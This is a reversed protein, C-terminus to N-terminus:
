VNASRPLKRMESQGCLNGPRARSGGPRSPALLASKPTRGACLGGAASCVRRAELAAPEVVPLAVPVGVGPGEMAIQEPQSSLVRHQAPLALVTQTFDPLSVLTATPTPPAATVTATPVAAQTEVQAMFTGAIETVQRAIDITPTTQPVLRATCASLILMISLVLALVRTPTSFRKM